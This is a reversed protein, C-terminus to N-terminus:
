IKPSKDLSELIKIDERNISFYSSDTGLYYIDRDTDVHHIPYVKMYQDGPKLVRARKGIDKHNYRKNNTDDWYDSNDRSSYDRPYYIM